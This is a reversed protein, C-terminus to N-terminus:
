RVMRDALQEYYDVRRVSDLSARELLIFAEWLGVFHVVRKQGM